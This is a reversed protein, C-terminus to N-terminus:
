ATACDRGIEGHEPVGKATTCFAGTELGFRLPTRRPETVTRGDRRGFLVLHTCPGTSFQRGVKQMDHWLREGISRFTEVLHSAELMSFGAM